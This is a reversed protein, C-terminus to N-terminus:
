FSLGIGVMPGSFGLDYKENDEDIRFRYTRYGVFIDVFPFPTITIDLKGRYGLDSLNSAILFGIETDLDIVEADGIKLIGLSAGVGIFPFFLNVDEKESVDNGKLTIDMNIVQAGGALNLSIGALVEGLDIFRYKYTAELFVLELRSDLRTGSPFLSDDLVIDNSLTGKGNLQGKLYSLDFGHRKGMISIDLFPLLDQELYMDDKLDVDTGSINGDIRLTGESDLLTMAVKGEIEIASSIKVRCLIVFCFFLAFVIFIARFLRM